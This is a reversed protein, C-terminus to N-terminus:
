AGQRRQQWSKQSQQMREVMQQRQAPTLIQHLAALRDIMQLAGQQMQDAPMLAALSEPTAQGSKLAALIQQTHNKLGQRNQTRASRNEQWLAQLQNQQAETLNLASLPRPFRGPQDATFREAKQTMKVDMQQLRAELQTRQAPTLIQWARLLHAAMKKAPANTMEQQLAQKLATADFQESVFAAQVKARFAKHATPQQMHESYLAKFQAKQEASLELDRMLGMLPGQHMGSQQMKHRMGQQQRRQKAPHSGATEASVAAASGVLLSLGLALHFFTKKM